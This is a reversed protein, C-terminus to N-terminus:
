VQTGHTRLGDAGEAATREVAPQRLMDVLVYTAKGAGKANFPTVTTLYSSGESLRDIYVDLKTWTANYHVEGTARDTVWM